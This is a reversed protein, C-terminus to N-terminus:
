LRNVADTGADLDRQRVPKLFEFARDPDDAV